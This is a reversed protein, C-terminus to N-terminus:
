LFASGDLVGERILYIQLRDGKLEIADATKEVVLLVRGMGFPSLEETTNLFDNVEIEGASREFREEDHSHLATNEAEGKAMSPM